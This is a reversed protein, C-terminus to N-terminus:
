RTKFDTVSSYPRESSGVLPLAERVTKLHLAAPNLERHGAWVCFHLRVTQPTAGQASALTIWGHRAPDLANAGLIGPWCVLLRSVIDTVLPFLGFVHSCAHTRSVRLSGVNHQTSNPEDTQRLVHM